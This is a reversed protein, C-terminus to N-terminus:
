PRPTGTDTGIIIGEISALHPVRHFHLGPTTVPPIITAALVLLTTECLDLVENSFCTDYSGEFEPLFLEQLLVSMAMQVEPRISPTGHLHIFGPKPATPGQCKHHKCRFPYRSQKVAPLKLTVWPGSPGEVHSITM